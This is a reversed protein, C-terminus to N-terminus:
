AEPERARRECQCVTRTRLLERLMPMPVTTARPSSCPSTIPIKTEVQLLASPSQHECRKFNLSSEIRLHTAAEIWPVAAIIHDSPLCGSSCATRTWPAVVTAHSAPSSTAARTWPGSVTSAHRHLRRRSVCFLCYLRLRPADGVNSARRTTFSSLLRDFNLRPPPTSPPQSLHPPLAPLVRAVRSPGPATRAHLILSRHPFFPAPV